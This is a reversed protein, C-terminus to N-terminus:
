MDCVDDSLFMYEDELSGTFNSDFSCDSGLDSDASLDDDDEQDSLFSTDDEDWHTGHTIMQAVRENHEFRVKRGADTYYGVEEYMSNDVSADEPGCVEHLIEGIVLPTGFFSVRKIPSGVEPEEVILATPPEKDEFTALLADVKHACESSSCVQSPVLETPSDELTFEEIDDKMGLEAFCAEIIEDRRDLEAFSVETADDRDVESALTSPKVARAAENARRLAAVRERQHYVSDKLANEFRTVNVDMDGVAKGITTCIGERKKKMMVRIQQVRQFHKEASELEVSIQVPPTQINENISMLSEWGRAAVLNKTRSSTPGSSRNGRWAKSVAMDNPTATSITEQASLVSSRQPREVALHSSSGLSNKSKETPVRITFSERKSSALLMRARSAAPSVLPMAPLKNVDMSIKPKSPSLVSPSSVWQSSALLKRARSVASSVPPVASAKAEVSRRPKQPSMISSSSEWREAASMKRTRSVPSLTSEPPPPLPSELSGKRTPKQPSLLSSVSGWREAHQMKNARTSPSSAGAPMATELSAKRAPKQPTMLSSVSGWREADEMKDIRDADSKATTTVTLPPGVFISLTSVHEVSGKREPKQPSMVSSMSEWREAEEMKDTRTTCADDDHDLYPGATPPPLVALSLPMPIEVSRMPKPHSMILSSSSDWQEADNMKDQRASSDDLPPAALSPPMRIEVSRMPKQPSCMLSSSSGWPETDKVHSARSSFSEWGKAAPLLSLRYSASSYNSETLAVTPETNDASIESDSFNNQLLKKTSGTSQKVLAAMRDSTSQWLKASKMKSERASLALNSLSQWDQKAALMIRARSAAPPRAASRPIAHTNELYHEQHPSPLVGETMESDSSFTREPKLLSTQSRNSQWRKASQMKSARTNNNINNSQQQEQHIQSSCSKWDKKALMMRTSRPTGLGYSLGNYRTTTQM